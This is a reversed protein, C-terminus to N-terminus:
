SADEEVIVYDINVDFVNDVDAKMALVANAGTLITIPGVIIFTSNGELLAANYIYVGPDALSGRAVTFRRAISTINAIRIKSIVLKTGTAVATRNIVNQTAITLRAQAFGFSDAM